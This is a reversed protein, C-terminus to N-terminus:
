LSTAWHIARMAGIGKALALICRPFALCQPDQDDLIMLVRRCRGGFQKAEGAMVSFNGCAPLRGQLRRDSVLRVHNEQVDSQGPDVTQFNRPLEPLLRYGPSREQNGYGSM